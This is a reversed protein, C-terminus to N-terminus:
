RLAENPDAEHLPLEVQQATQTRTARATPDAGTAHQKSKQRTRKPKPEIARPTGSAVRKRTRGYQRQGLRLAHAIESDSRLAPEREVARVLEGYIRKRLGHPAGIREALELTSAADAPRCSLGDFLHRELAAGALDLDRDNAEALARFRAVLTTRLSWFRQVLTRERARDKGFELATDLHAADYPLVVAELEAWMPVMDDRLTVDDALVPDCAAAAAIAAQQTPTCARLRRVVEAENAACDLVNSLSRIVQANDQDPEASGRMRVVIEDSVSALLQRSSHSATPWAAVVVRVALPIPLSDLLALALDEPAWGRAEALAAGLEVPPAALMREVATVLWAPNVVDVRDSEDAELEQVLWAGRLVLAPSPEHEIAARVLPLVYEDAHAHLDSELLVPGLFQVLGPYLRAAGLVRHVTRTQLPTLGARRVARAAARLAHTVAPELEAAGAASAALTACFGAADLARAPDDQRLLLERVSLRAALVGLGLALEPTARDIWTTVLERFRAFPESDFCALCTRVAEQATTPATYSARLRPPERGLRLAEAHLMSTVDLSTHAGESRVCQELATKLPSDALDSALEAWVCQAARWHRARLGAALLLWRVAALEPASGEILDRGRVIRSLWPVARATDHREALGQLCALAARAVTPGLVAREREPLSLWADVAEGAHGRALEAEVQARARRAQKQHKDPKAM